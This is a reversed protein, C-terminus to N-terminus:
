RWLFRNYHGGSAPRYYRRFSMSQLSFAYYVRLGFELPRLDGIYNTISNVTIGPIPQRKNLIPEVEIMPDKSADLPSGTNLIGIDAYAQVGITTTRTLQWEYGVEAGLMLVGIAREADVKQTSPLDLWGTIRENTVAVDYQKYYASIMLDNVTMKTSAALPLVFRPGINLSVPGFYLAMMMSLETRAYITSQSFASEVTYDMPSGDYDFNKYHDTKTGELAESGFGAGLGVTFGWFCNSSINSYYAYRIDVMGGGCYGNRVAWTDGNKVKPLVTQAGGRIGVSMQTKHAHAPM